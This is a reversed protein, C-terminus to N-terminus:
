NEIRQAIMTKVKKLILFIKHLEDSKLANLGKDIAYERGNVIMFYWMEGIVYCGYIPKQDANIEQAILSPILVQAIPDDAKNKKRKYEHFYFYPNEILDEITKAVTFDAICKLEINDVVGKVEADFLTQYDGIEDYNVLDLLLAIFKMKLTEENWNNFNKLLPLRIRELQAIESNKITNEVALWDDLLPYNELYKSLKFQKTLLGITWDIKEKKVMKYFNSKNYFYQLIIHLYVNNEDSFQRLVIDIGSKQKM